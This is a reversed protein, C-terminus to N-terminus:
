YWKLVHYCNTYCETELLVSCHAEECLFIEGLEIDRKAEAFRGLDKDYKIDISDNLANYVPNSKGNLKGKKPPATKM